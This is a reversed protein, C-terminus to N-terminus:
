IIARLKAPLRADSLDFPPPGPSSFSRAKDVRIHFLAKCLPHQDPRTHPRTFIHQIQSAYHDRANEGIDDACQHDDSQPPLVAPTKGSQTKERRIVHQLAQPEEQDDQSPTNRVGQRDDRGVHAHHRTRQAPQPAQLAERPALPRLPLVRRDKAHKNDQV